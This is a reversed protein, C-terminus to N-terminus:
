NFDDRLVDMSLYACAQPHFLRLSFTWIFDCLEPLHNLKTVEVGNIPTAITMAICHHHISGRHEQFYVTCVNQGESSIKGHSPIRLSYQSTTYCKIMQSRDGTPEFKTM